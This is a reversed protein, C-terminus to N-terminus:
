RGRNGPGPFPLTPPPSRVWGSAMQYEPCNRLEALSVLVRRLVGLAPTGGEPLADCSFRERTSLSHWASPKAIERAHTCDFCQPIDDPTEHYEGTEPNYGM